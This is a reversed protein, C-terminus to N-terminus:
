ADRECRCRRETEPRVLLCSAMLLAHTMSMSTALIHNAIREDSDAGQPNVVPNLFEDGGFYRVPHEVRM